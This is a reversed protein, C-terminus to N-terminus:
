EHYKLEGARGTDIWVSDVVFDVKINMMETWGIVQHRSWTGSPSHGHLFFFYGVTPSLLYFPGQYFQLGVKPAAEPREFCLSYRYRRLCALWNKRVSVRAVKVLPTRVEEIHQRLENLDGLVWRQWTKKLWVPLKM